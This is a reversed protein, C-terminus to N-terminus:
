FFFWRNMELARELSQWKFNIVHDGANEWDAQMAGGLALFRQFMIEELQISHVNPIREQTTLIVSSRVKANVITLMASDVWQRELQIIGNSREAPRWLTEGIWMEPFEPKGQCAITSIAGGTNLSYGWQGTRTRLEIGAHVINQGEGVPECNLELVADHGDLIKAYMWARGWEPLKRVAELNPIALTAM